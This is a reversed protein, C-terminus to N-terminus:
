GLDRRAEVTQVSWALLARDGLSVGPGSLVPPPLSKPRPCGGTSAPLSTGLFTHKPPALPRPRCQPRLRLTIHDPTKSASSLSRDSFRLPRQDRTAAADICEWPLRADDPSPAAPEWVRSQHGEGPGETFAPARIPCLLVESSPPFFIRIALVAPYDHQAPVAGRTGRLAQDRRAPRTWGM